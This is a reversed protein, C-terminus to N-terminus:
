KPTGPSLLPSHVCNRKPHRTFTVSETCLEKQPAQHFYRVTYVTGVSTRIETALVCVRIISGIVTSASFYKPHQGAILSRLKSHWGEVANDTRNRHKNINWMEISINRSAM